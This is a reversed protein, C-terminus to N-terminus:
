RDIAWEVFAWNRNLSCTSYMVPGAIRGVLQNTSTHERYISGHKLLLGQYNEHNQSATCGSRVPLHSTVEVIPLLRMEIECYYIDDLETNESILPKM